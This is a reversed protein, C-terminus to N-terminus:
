LKSFFMIKWGAAQDLKKPIASSPLVVNKKNKISNTHLIFRELMNAQPECFM